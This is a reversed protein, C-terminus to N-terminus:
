RRVNSRSAAARILSDVPCFQGSITESPDIEGTYLRNQASTFIKLNQVWLLRLSRLVHMYKCAIQDEDEGILAVLQLFFAIDNFRSTEYEDFGADGLMLASSACDVATLMANMMNVVRGHFIYNLTALSGSPDTLM